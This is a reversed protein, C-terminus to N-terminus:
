VPQVCNHPNVHSCLWNPYTAQLVVQYYTNCPAMATVCTVNYGEYQCCNTGHVSCEPGADAPPQPLCGNNCSGSQSFGPCDNVDASAHRSLSLAILSFLLSLALMFGVNLNRISQSM